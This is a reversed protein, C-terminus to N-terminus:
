PTNNQFKIGVRELDQIIAHLDEDSSNVEPVFYRTKGDTLFSRLWSLFVEKKEQDEFYTGLNGSHSVIRGSKSKTKGWLHISETMPQLEDLDRLIIKMEEISLNQPGGHFTFIQLFDLAFRLNLKFSQILNCLDNLQKESSILFKGGRYQTGSRNEILIKVEPYAKLIKEEFIAYISLFDGISATYDTFPPHIEIITPKQEKCLVKIFNAFELAWQQSYWLQPIGNKNASQITPFKDMLPSDFKRKGYSYETHLSFDRPTSITSKDFHAAIEDIRPKIHTPYNRKHYQIPILM